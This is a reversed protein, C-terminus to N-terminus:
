QHVSGQPLWGDFTMSEGCDDDLTKAVLPQTLLKHTRAGDPEQVIRHAVCFSKGQKLHRKAM